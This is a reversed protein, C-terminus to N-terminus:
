APPAETAPPATGCLAQLAPAVTQQALVWGELDETPANALYNTLQEPTKVNGSKVAGLVVRTFPGLAKINEALEPTANAVMDDYAKLISDPDAIIRQGLGPLDDVAYIKAAACLAAKKDVVKTTTPAPTPVKTTAAAPKTTPTGAPKSTTVGAPAGAAKTTPPFTSPTKATASTPPTLGAATTTATRAGSGTEVGSRLGCSVVLALLPVLLVPLVPHLPAPRRM